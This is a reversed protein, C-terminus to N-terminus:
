PGPRRRVARGGRRSTGATSGTCSRRGGGCGPSHATSGWRPKRPVPAFNSSIKTTVSELSGCSLAKQSSSSRGCTRRRCSSFAAHARSTSRSPSTSPSPHHPASAPHPVSPTRTPPLPSPGPRAGAGPGPSRSRSRSRSRGSSPGPDPGPSLGPGNRPEVPSPLAPHPGTADLQANGLQAIRCLGRHQQHVAVRVALLHPGLDGATQGAPEMHHQVVDPAAAPGGGRLWEPAAEGQLLQRVVEQGDGVGDAGVARDMEDTM